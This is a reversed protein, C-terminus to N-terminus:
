ASDSPILNNSEASSNEIVLILEIAGNNNKIGAITITKALFLGAVLSTGSIELENVIGKPPVSISAGEVISNGILMKQALDLMYQLTQIMSQLNSPLTDQDLSLLANLSTQATMKVGKIYHTTLICIDNPDGQTNLTIFYVAALYNPTIRQMLDFFKIAEFANNYHVIVNSTPDVDESPFNGVPVYNDVIYYYYECATNDSINFTVLNLGCSAISPPNRINWVYDQEVINDSSDIICNTVTYTGSAFIPTNPLDILSAVVSGPGTPMNQLNIVPLDFKNLKYVSTPGSGVNMNLVLRSFDPM